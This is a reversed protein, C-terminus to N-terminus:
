HCLNQDIDRLPDHALLFLSSPRRLTQQEPHGVLPGRTNVLGGDSSEAIWPVPLQRVLQAVHQATEATTMLRLPRQGQSLRLWKDTANEGPRDMDPATPRYAAGHAYDGTV